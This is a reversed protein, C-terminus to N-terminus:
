HRNTSLQCTQGGQVQLLAANFVIAANHAHCQALRNWPLPTSPHSPPPRAPPCANYITSAHKIASRCYCQTREKSNQSLSSPQSTCPAVTTNRKDKANASNYQRTMLSQLSDRERLPINACGRGLMIKSEGAASTNRRSGAFACQCGFSARMAAFIARLYKRLAKVLDPPMGTTSPTSRVHSSVGCRQTCNM